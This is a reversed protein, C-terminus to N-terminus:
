REGPGQLWLLLLNVLFALTLLVIGLAMALAFNGKSTEMVIATTMVRTQGSINGGVILVAGVEAVVRGFGAMVAALLNNRAERVVLWAAQGPTAGLLLATERLRPSVAGLASASLAAIIPTALLAQAVIMATPSFLLGLFGLPGQRSLLLYLGLGLVVPPLGMLSNLLNLALRRGPFRRLALVAGLPIGVMTALLVATGSVMLSLGIIEYVQHDGRWLLGLSVLIDALM